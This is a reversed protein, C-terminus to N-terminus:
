HRRSQLIRYVTRESIALTQAIRARSFGDRRLLEEIYHVQLDNITPLTDFDFCIGEERVHSAGPLLALMDASIMGLRGALMRARRIIDRLERINGPWAYGRIVARAAPELQFEDKLRAGPPHLCHQAIELSDNERMRLPPVVIAQHGFHDLLERRLRGALSGQGAESRVGAILRVDARLEATGGIRCYTGRKFM